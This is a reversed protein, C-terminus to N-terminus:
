NRLDTPMSPYVPSAVPTVLYRIWGSYGTYHFGGNKELLRVAEQQFVSRIRYWPLGPYKHHVAHYNNYLFLLSFLGCSEVVVIRKEPDQAFRHEFFSRLSILAHGIHVSILYAWWPVGFGDVVLWLVLAIGTVHFIWVLRQRNRGHRLQDLCLAAMAMLGHIPNLLLRGLLTMNVWGLARLATGRHQWEDATHFFSEPDVGPVTLFEDRHHRLHSAKYVPFPYVLAIPPSGLLDNFGSSRTPHGHILEHQLSLHMALCLGLLLIVLPPALPYVALLLFWALYNGLLLGVTPWEVERWKM